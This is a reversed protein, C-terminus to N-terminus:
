KQIAAEARHSYLRLLERLAKAEHGDESNVLSRYNLSLHSILRWVLDGSEFSFPARPETPGAVCRIWEVPQGTDIPFDTHGKDIPMHTPLDRNTCLVHVLLLSFDSRYPTETAAVLTLYCESGTYSSRPGTAKNRSAI